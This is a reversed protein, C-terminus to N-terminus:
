NKAKAILSQIEKWIHANADPDAFAEINSQLTQRKLQSSFLSEVALLLTGKEFESEEVLVAANADALAKANKFQHNDVVNPSPILISTKKLQALESLTMAGARSIVIDSASMYLPMQYIYDVIRCNPYQNLGKQEFLTSIEEFDRKGTAHVHIIDPHEATFKEM